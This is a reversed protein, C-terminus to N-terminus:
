IEKHILCVAYAKIGKKEGTFGLGEETKGKINVLDATIDLAAAVATKMRDIYPALKPTEAVVTADINNIAYGRSRLLERINELLKLSSVGQYNPDGPPFHKGIDGEGLAGILADIIAHLLVDGDSWGLLGKEHPIEVGGIILKRKKVLKHVDYGIGIKM